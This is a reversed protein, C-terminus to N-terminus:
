VEFLCCSQGEMMTLVGFNEDLIEGNGLKPVLPAQYPVNNYTYDERRMWVLDKGLRHKTSNPYAKLVYIGNEMHGHM